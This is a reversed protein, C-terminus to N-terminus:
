EEEQKPNFGIFAIKAPQLVMMNECLDDEVDGWEQSFSIKSIELGNKLGARVVAPDALYTHETAIDFSNYESEIVIHGLSDFHKISYSLLEDAFYAEQIFPNSNEYKALDVTENNLIVPEDADSLWYYGTFCRKQIENLKM